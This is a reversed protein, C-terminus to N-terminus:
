LPRKFLVAFCFKLRGWFQLDLIAKTYGINALDTNVQTLHRIKKALRGNM